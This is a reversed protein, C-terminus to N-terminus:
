AAKRVLAIAADFAALVQAHTTGPDDNWKPLHRVGAVRGLILYARFRAQENVRNTKTVIQDDVQCGAAVNLAGLACYGIGRGKIRGTYAGKIWKRPNAILARARRLITVPKLARSM